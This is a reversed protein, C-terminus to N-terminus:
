SQLLARGNGQRVFLYRHLYHWLFRITSTISTPMCDRYLSHSLKNGQKFSNMPVKDDKFSSDSLLCIQFFQPFLTASGELSSLAISSTIHCLHTPTTNGTFCQPPLFNKCYLFHTSILSLTMGRM